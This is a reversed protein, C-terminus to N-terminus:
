KNRQAQALMSAIIHAPVESEDIDRSTTITEHECSTNYQLAYVLAVACGGLALVCYAAMDVRQTFLAYMTTVGLAVATAILALVVIQSAKM